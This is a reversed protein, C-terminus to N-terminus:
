ESRPAATSKISVAEFLKASEFWRDGRLATHVKHLDAIRLTPDGDILILDAVYGPAVRAYEKDRSLVKAARLTAIRLTEAPPIGTSVYLELERVLM